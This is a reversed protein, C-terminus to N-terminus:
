MKATTAKAAGHKHCKSCCGSGKACKKKNGKGGEAFSAGTIFLAATALFLVKKM